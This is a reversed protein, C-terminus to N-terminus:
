ASPINHYVEFPTRSNLGQHPRRYTYLDFWQTLGENVDAGNTYDKLYIDEYKVSRWLREIFVNDMARGRGDMSVAVRHETLLSTFAESTFQSGQDTNFIEPRGRALAATVAEICFTSELTNSLRWALVHRSYWDMVAVLYLYGQRVPVYTIDNCWVQDPRDITLGRLLYPYVKHEPAPITTKRGPFLGELGMTRMLRQVRKRNVTHGERELHDAMRRSGFFPTTLYQEDILRMLRLNEASEPAPEYYYSSRPLGLLECQQVISLEPHGPEIWHRRDVASSPLKKKVFEM